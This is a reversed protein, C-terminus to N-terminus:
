LRAPLTLSARTVRRDPDPRGTLSRRRPRIQTRVEMAQWGGEALRVGNDWVSVMPVPRGGTQCVRAPEWGVFVAQFGGWLRGDFQVRYRRGVVLDVSDGQASSGNM